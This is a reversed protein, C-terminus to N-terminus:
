FDKRLPHYKKLARLSKADFGLEALWDVDRPEVLTFCEVWDPNGRFDTSLRAPRRCIALLSIESHRGYDILNRLPEPIQSANCFLDTEEIVFLARKWAKVIGAVAEFEVERSLGSSGDPWFILRLYRQGREWAENILGVLSKLNKATSFGEVEFARTWEGSPLPDYVLIHIKENLLSQIIKRAEWSKGSGRKGFILGIFPKM